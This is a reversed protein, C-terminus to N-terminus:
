RAVPCSLSKVEEDVGIIRSSKGWTIVSIRRSLPATSSADRKRKWEGRHVRRELRKGKLFSGCEFILTNLVSRAAEPPFFNWGSLRFLASANMQWKIASWCARRKRSIFLSASGCLAGSQFYHLLGRDPFVQIKIKSRLLVEKSYKQARIGNASLNSKPRFPNLNWTFYAAIKAFRSLSSPFFRTSFNISARKRRQFKEVRQGIRKSRVRALREARKPDM